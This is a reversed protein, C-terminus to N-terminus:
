LSQAEDRSFLASCNRGHSKSYGEAPFPFLVRLWVQGEQVFLCSCLDWHTLASLQSSCGEDWRHSCLVHGLM